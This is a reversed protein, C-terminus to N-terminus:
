LEAVLVALSQYSAASYISIVLAIVSSWANIYRVKNEMELKTETETEVEMTPKVMEWGVSLCMRKM